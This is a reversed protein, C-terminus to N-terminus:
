SVKGEGRVEEKGEVRDEEPGKGTGMGGGEALYRSTGLSIVGDGM